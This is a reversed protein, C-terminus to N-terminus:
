MFRAVMVCRVLFCLQWSIDIFLTRKYSDAYRITSTLPQWSIKPASTRQVLLMADASTRFWIDVQGLHIFTMQAIIIQEDMSRTDFSLWKDLLASIANRVIPRGNRRDRSTRWSKSNDSFGFICMLKFCFTLAYWNFITRMNTQYHLMVINVM